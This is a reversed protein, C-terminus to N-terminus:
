PVTDSARWVVADCGEYKRGEIESSGDVSKRGKGMEAEEIEM